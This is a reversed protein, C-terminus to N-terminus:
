KDLKNKPAPPWIHDHDEVYYEVDKEYKGNRRVQLFVIIAVASSIHMLINLAFLLDLATKSPSILLNTQLVLRISSTAMTASLFTLSVLKYRKLPDSSGAIRVLAIICVIMLTVYIVPYILDGNFIM